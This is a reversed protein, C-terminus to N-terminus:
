VNVSDKSDRFGSTGIRRIRVIGCANMHRGFVAREKRISVFSCAHAELTYLNM